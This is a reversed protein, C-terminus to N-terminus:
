RAEYGVPLFLTLKLRGRPLVVPEPQAQWEESRQVAYKRLDARVTV